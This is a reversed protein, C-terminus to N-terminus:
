ALLKTNEVSLGNEFSIDCAIGTVRHCASIIPSRCKDLLEEVDWLHPEQQLSEVIDTMLGLLMSRDRVCEGSYYNDTFARFNRDSFNRHDFGVFLVDSIM